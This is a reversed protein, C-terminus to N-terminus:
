NFNFTNKSKFCLFYYQFIFLLHNKIKFFTIVGHKNKRRKTRWQEKIERKNLNLDWIIIIISEFHFM